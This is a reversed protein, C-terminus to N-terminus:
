LKWTYGEALESEFGNFFRVTKFGLGRAQDLVGSKGLDNATVRTALVWKISLNTNKPGTATVTTDMRQELFTQELKNAFAKRAAIQLPELAAAQKEEDVLKQHIGDAMKKDDAAMAVLLAQAQSSNASSKSIAKLKTKTNEWDSGRTQNAADQATQADVLKQAGDIFTKEQERQRDEPSLAAVRSIEAVASAAKAKEESTPPPLPDSTAASAVTTKAQHHDTGVGISLGIVAYIAIPAGTWWLFPRTPKYEVLAAKWRYGFWVIVAVFTAPMAGVIVMGIFSGIGLSGSILMGLAMSFTAMCVVAFWAGAVWKRKIM